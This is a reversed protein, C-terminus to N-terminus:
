RTVEPSAWACGVLSLAIAAVTSILALSFGIRWPPEYRLRLTRTPVPVVTRVRGWADRELTAPVGDVDAQWWPRWLLNVIVTAPRTLGSVDVVAGAGDFSIPVERVTETEVFALPASAPLSLLTSANGQVEFRALPLVRALMAAEDTALRELDNGAPNPGHDADIVSRYVVLWKVGYAQLAEAVRDSRLSDAAKRYEQTAHAFTDYGGLAYAGVVTPLNHRLSTSYASSVSRDPAFSYLRRIPPQTVSRVM